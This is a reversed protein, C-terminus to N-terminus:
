KQKNGVRLLGSLNFQRTHIDRALVNQSLQDHKSEYVNVCMVCMCVCVCVICSLATGDINDKGCIGVIRM